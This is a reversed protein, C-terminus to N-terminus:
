YGPPYAIKTNSALKTEERNDVPKITNGNNSVKYMVGLHWFTNLEDKPKGRWDWNKIAAKRSFAGPGEAGCNWCKVHWQFHFLGFTLSLGTLLGDCFPCHKYTM